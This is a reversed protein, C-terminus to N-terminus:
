RSPSLRRRSRRVRGPTERCFRHHRCAGRTEGMRERATGLARLAAEYDRQTRYYYEGLAMSGEPLTPDLEFVRDVAARARAIRERTRDYGFWYADSHAISLFAWALAFDADLAVVEELLDIAELRSERTDQQQVDRARLFLDYAELNETPVSAIRAEEAPALVARLERAIDRVIEMQIAILNAASLDREYSEAWLHADTAADILQVNILVVDDARQVSGELVRAVRLESGIQPMPKTTGDYELMSTRSIVHLDGVKALQTLLADHIGVRFSENQEDVTTFPLVALSKPNVDAAGLSPGSLTGSGFIVWATGLVGLLAFAVVGGALANRWTLVSAAGTVPEPAPPPVDGADAPSRRRAEPEKTTMGEQVFATAMVIPFGIILLVLALPRVWAPLSAAEALQEVVQLAIWSGVLYIGLVQWLSRRHIEHILSKM